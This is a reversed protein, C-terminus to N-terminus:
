DEDGPLYETLVKDTNHGLVWNLTALIAQGDCDLEELIDADDFKKCMDLVERETKM